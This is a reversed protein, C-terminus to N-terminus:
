FCLTLLVYAFGFGRFSSSPLDETNIIFEAELM